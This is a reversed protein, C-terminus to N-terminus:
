ALYHQMIATLGAANLPGGRGTAAGDANKPIAYGLPNWPMNQPGAKGAKQAKIPSFLGRNMATVKDKAVGTWNEPEWINGEPLQVAGTNLAFLLELDEQSNPKQTVKMMALRKALELRDNIIELQEQQLQPYVENLLARQAPDNKNYMSAVFQKFEAATMQDRKRTLWDVDRDTMMKEGFIDKNAKAKIEVATDYPDPAYLRVPFSGKTNPTNQGLGDKGTGTDGDAARGLIQYITDAGYRDELKKIDAALSRPKRLPHVSPPKPQDARHGTKDTAAAM